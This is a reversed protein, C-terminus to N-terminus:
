TLERLREEDFQWCNLQWDYSEVAVASVYGSDVSITILSWRAAETEDWRTRLIAAPEEPALTVDFQDLPASLGTGKAKLFAEKRTWCNFFAEHRAHAPLRSLCAVETDSFFRKAIDDGPFDTRIHELDVGVEGILTIAYLAFSCSHAVNFKLKSATSTLQPKGHGAYCFEVKSPAIELYDGLVIRLCGRAVIFHRRDREFHFRDARAREDPSLLRSLRQVIDAPQELFLRWVHVDTAGLVFQNPASPWAWTSHFDM